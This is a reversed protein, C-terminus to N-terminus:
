SAVVAINYISKDITERKDELNPKSEDTETQDKTYKM